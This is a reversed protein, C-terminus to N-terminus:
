LREFDLNLVRRRLEMRKHCKACYRLYVIKSRDSQSCDKKAKLPIYPNQIGTGLGLYAACEVGYELVVIAFSYWSV